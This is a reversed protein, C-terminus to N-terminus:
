CSAGTASSRRAAGELLLNSWRASPAVAYCSKDIATTRATSWAIGEVISVPRCKRQLKYRTATSVAKIMMDGLTPLVQARLPHGSVMSFVMNYVEPMVEEYMENLKLVTARASHWAMGIRSLSDNSMAEELYLRM